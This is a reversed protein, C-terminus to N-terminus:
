IQLTSMTTVSLFIDHQKITKILINEVDNKAFFVGFFEVAKVSIAVCFVCHGLKKQTFNLTLVGVPIM